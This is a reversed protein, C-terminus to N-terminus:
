AARGTRAAASKNTLAEWAEKWPLAATEDGGWEVAGRCFGMNKAGVALRESCLDHLAHLFAKRPAAPWDNGDLPPRITMHFVISGGVLREEAFLLKTVVGATFRDIVNHDFAQVHKVDTVVGDDILLRAARGRSDSNLEEREKAAGLLAELEEPRRTLADLAQQTCDDANILDGNQCRWHFLTRHALPGKLASGPITFPVATFASDASAEVFAAEGKDNWRIVPERAATAVKDAGRPLPSGNQQPEGRRDADVREVAAGDAARAGSQTGETIPPSWGGIRWPNSPTLTITATVVGQATTDGPLITEDFEMSPPADRLARLARPDNLDPCAYSARILKVRGYGRGGGGGLRFAPHQFLGVIRKLLEKDDGAKDASGWLALEVSFRSGVPVALRVFKKRGDAVHRHNLAVHDRRLPERKRLARLLPDAELNTISGVVANDTADHVCSFGTILRGVAGDAGQAFGFVEKTEDKGYVAAYLHNLVGQLSGGTITPLGNVDRVLADAWIPGAVEGDETKGQAEVDIRNGSGSSLPSAAEFSIRALHLIEGKPTATPATKVGATAREDVRRWRADMQQGPVKPLTIALSEDDKNIKPAAGWAASLLPPATWIRGLGAERWLGVVGRGAQQSAVPPEYRFTFVSGAAIVQREVDRGGLARNWPAYRRLAIASESALFKGGDPLGLMAATPQFCPAGWDDLLALDSLAWVRVPLTEGACVAGAPWLEAKKAEIVECYFGGGASGAARGLRLVKEQFASLLLTWDGDSLAEDDAELTAAFRSGAGPELHQHGFLQGDAARGNRTATRLRGGLSPRVVRGAASVFVDKLPERQESGTPRGVTVAQPNLANDIIGGRAHKPEFLVQPVPYAAQGDDTLPLANSFRVRGSNFVVFPDAFRGYRGGGAAHGLLAAGPVYTLTKHEGETAARESFIVSETATLALLASRM